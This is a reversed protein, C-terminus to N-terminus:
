INNLKRKLCDLCIYGHDEDILDLGEEEDYFREETKYKVLFLEERGLYPIDSCIDCETMNIWLYKFGKFKTM